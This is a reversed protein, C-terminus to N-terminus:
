LTDEILPFDFLHTLAYGVAVCGTSSARKVGFGFCLAVLSRAVNSGSLDWGLRRVDTM